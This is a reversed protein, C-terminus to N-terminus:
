REPSRGSTSLPAPGTQPEPEHGKAERPPQTTAGVDLAAWGASGLTRLTQRNNDFIADAAPFAQVARAVSSERLVHLTPYPARNTFNTIDDGPTDAFEYAPHFSAIQLIGDLRLKALLRDAAAVLDNFELFEGFGEPIVLLTTDGVQADACALDLLERKLDALLEARANAASIVWLIQGKVQVAKAFPCLNLGIVARQLWRQMDALVQDAFDPQVIAGTKEHM